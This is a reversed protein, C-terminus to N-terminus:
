FWVGVLYLEVNGATLVQISGSSKNAVYRVISISNTAFDITTSNGSLSMVFDTEDLELINNIKLVDGVAYGGEATLVKLEAWVLDPVSGQSHSFSYTNSNPSAFATSRIITPGTQLALVAAKVKAPSVLSETTGTGTEWTGILQDGIVGNTDVGAATTVVTDDLIKFTDTGQDLYGINIWQGAANDEPKVKFITDLGSDGTLTHMWIMNKFTDAPESSGSNNSNLAKLASNLDTRLSASLQNAIDYDHQSM